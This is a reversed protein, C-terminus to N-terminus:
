SAREGEGRRLRPAEGLLRVLRERAVIGKFRKVGDVFVVPIENGHSASLIPDKSIDTATWGEGEPGLAETLVEAARECLSCGPKTLMLVRPPGGESRRGEAGRAPSGVERPKRSGECPVERRGPIAALAVVASTAAIDVLADKVSADRGPVFSQHAEDIVAYIAGFGWVLALAARTIPRRVEGGLALLLLIALMSFEATHLLVDPISRVAPIAPQSSLHWTLGLYAAFLAWRLARAVALREIVESSLPVHDM